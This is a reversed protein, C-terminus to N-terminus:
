ETNQKANVKVRFFILLSIPFLDTSYNPKFVSLHFLSCLVWSIIFSCHFLPFFIDCVHCFVLIGGYFGYYLSCINMFKYHM